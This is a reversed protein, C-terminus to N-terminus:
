SPIAAGWGRPAAGSLMRDSVFPNSQREQGFSSMAGHGPIFRVDNGLPWLKDTISKFLQQQDGGPFDWRGVGGKFLVDGVQAFRAQRHFLIVHGRTHGPTHFVEFAAEGVQITDGEALWRDPTFSRAGSIGYQAGISPLLELWDADDRHPGEIPVGTKERMEDAGGAHDIHGHTLWIKEVTVGKGRVAKLVREVEGGPDIVAGKMTRTCWVVTCNQQLPTVPLFFAGIPSPDSM